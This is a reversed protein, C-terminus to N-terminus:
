QATELHRRLQRIRARVSADLIRDGVRLVLGGIVEPDITTVLAVTRGLGTELKERLRQEADAPLAVASTVQVEVVAAEAAVIDELERRVDGLAEFRGKDLLLLLVNRVLKEADGALQVVVRHKALVATQPNELVDALGPNAAIADAFLGLDRNVQEVRGAEHAADYLAQAYVRGVREDSV